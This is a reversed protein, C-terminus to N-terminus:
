AKSLIANIIIQGHDRTNEIFLESTNLGSVVVGAIYINEINSELTEENIVPKKANDNQLIIGISELFDFNPKYGTMALVYDNEIEINGDPTKISVFSQTIELVESNFYANISGEKIRNEINPLIWYKVKQYLKDDRVVMTVEAGKQWTELAVDCASNAAGIVVVKRNIYPHADDYYHKVKPLMEGKVNLFKPNDFYGTALIIFKANLVKENNCNLTFNNNGKVIKNVQTQYLINLKFSSAIRRYYELAESRTPKENHSIFPIEGIELRESTSFFTMNVPFNYISNVLCAKEVVLYNINAKQAAIACAIGSPGAGIIILEYNNM